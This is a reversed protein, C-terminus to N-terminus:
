SIRFRRIGLVANAAGTSKMVGETCSSMRVGFLCNAAIGICLESGDSIVFGAFFVAAAPEITGQGKLGLAALIRQGLSRAGRSPTGANYQRTRRGLGARAMVLGIKTECARCTWVKNPARNNEERGDLHGVEITRGRAGCFAV